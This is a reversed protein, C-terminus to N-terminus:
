RSPLVLRFGINFERYEHVNYNRKTVRCNEPDFFWCGGRFVKSRYEGSSAGLPNAGPSSAYYTEDYGDSCWEWVNGSMDYLGLENAQKQGVPHTGSGTNHFYWAVADLNNSGAYQMQRSKNGGRAAYEWEAESPLRYQGGILANLKSLFAQVDLYSVQEVPCQACGYFISPNDGMVAVWLAQTVEYKSMYFTSLEVRHVPKEDDGCDRQESTCGMEFSGGEVRVMNSSLAELAAAAAQQVIPLAQDRKEERIIEDIYSQLEIEKIIESGMQEKEYELREEDGVENRETSVWKLVYEGTAFGIKKVVGPEAIGRSEGDVYITCRADTMIKLVLKNSGPSVSEGTSQRPQTPKSPKQEPKGSGPRERLTQSIAPNTLGFLFLLCIFQISRM